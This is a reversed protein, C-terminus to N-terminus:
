GKMPMAEPGKDAIEEEVANSHKVMVVVAKPVGDGAPGTRVVVEFGFLAWGDKAYENLRFDLDGDADCIFSLYKM